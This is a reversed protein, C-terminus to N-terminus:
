ATAQGAGQIIADKIAFAERAWNTTPAVNSSIDIAADAALPYLEAEERDIRAFMGLTMKRSATRFGNWDNAVRAPTWFRAHQSYATFLEALEAQYKRGIERVHPREDRLLKAYLHRDEFALHQMIHSSLQWRRDALLLGDPMKACDLLALLADAKERMVVHDRLMRHLM